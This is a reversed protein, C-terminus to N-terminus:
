SCTQQAQLARRPKASRSRTAVTGDNHMTLTETPQQSSSTPRCSGAAMNSVRRMFSLVLSCHCHEEPRVTAQQVRGWRPKCSEGRLCGQATSRLKRHVDQRFCGKM